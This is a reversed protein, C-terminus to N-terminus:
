SSPNGTQSPDATVDLQPLEEPASLPLTVTCCLGKPDFDLTARGGSQAFTRDILRTGFGRRRPKIVPPGGSEEWLLTMSRHGDAGYALNWNVTVQGEPTSLAGYKIANTTLEHLALSMSVAQHPNLRVPPGEVRFRSTGGQYPRAIGEVITGLDASAWNERVLLNHAESLALLRETLNQRITGEVGASRLTQDVISQVTSLTNKLRHNLENLLLVRQDEALKTRTEDRMVKLLADTGEIRATVGNAWFLDGSKRRHWRTDEARGETIARQLEVRDLQASRDSPLFIETFNMGVAEAASYGV